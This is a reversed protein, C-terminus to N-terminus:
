QQREPLTTLRKLEDSARDIFMLAGAAASAAEWAPKMEGTSVAQQRSSVARTALQTATTLLGHVTEGGPPPTVAALLRTVISTQGELWILSRRPTTDLQRIAELRTRCARLMAAPEALARAFDRMVELRAAWQDRALRLRRASDLKTDLLALLAAM